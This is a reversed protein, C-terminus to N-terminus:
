VQKYDKGEVGVLKYALVAHGWTGKGDPKNGRFSIILSRRDEKLSRKVGEYTRSQSESSSSGYGRNFNLNADSLISRMVPVMQDRHNIDINQSAEEFSMQYTKKAVPRLPPQDVRL